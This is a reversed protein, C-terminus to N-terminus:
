ISLSGFHLNFCPFLLPMEVICQFSSVRRMFALVLNEIRLGCHFGYNLIEINELCLADGGTRQLLLKGMGVTGAAAAHNGKMPLPFASDIGCASAVNQTRKM